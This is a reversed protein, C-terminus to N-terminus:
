RRQDRCTIKTIMWQHLVIFCSPGMRVGEQYIREQVKDWETVSGDDEAWDEDEDSEEESQWGGDAEEPEDDDDGEDENSEYDEVYARRSQGAMVAQRASELVESADKDSTDEDIDSGPEDVLDPNEDIEADLRADPIDLIPLDLDM